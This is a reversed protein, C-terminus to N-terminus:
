DFTYNKIPDNKTPLLARLISISLNEKLDVIQDYCSKFLEKIREFKFAQKTVNINPDVPNELSLFARKSMSNDFNKDERKYYFGGNRLSIGLLNYNFDWGYLKFINMLHDSLLLNQESESEKDFVRSKNKNQQFYSSIMLILGYSSIGGDFTKNLNNVSLLIKLFIVIYKIEKFEKLLENIYLSGKIGDDHNICIDFDTGTECDNGKVLSVKAKQIFLNWFRENNALTNRM